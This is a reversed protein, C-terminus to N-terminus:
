FTTTKIPFLPIFMVYTGTQTPGSSELQRLRNRRARIWLRRDRASFDVTTRVTLLSAIVSVRTQNVSRSHRRLTHPSKLRRRPLNARFIFDDVVVIGVFVFQQVELVRVRQPQVGGPQQPLATGQAVSRKKNDTM